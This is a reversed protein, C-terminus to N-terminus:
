GGRRRATGRWTARGRRDKRTTSDTHLKRECHPELEQWIMRGYSYIRHFNDVIFELRSAEEVNLPQSLAKVPM